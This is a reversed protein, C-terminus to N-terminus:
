YIQNWQRPFVAWNMQIYFLARLRRSWRWLASSKTKRASSPFKELLHLHISDLTSVWRYSWKSIRVFCVFSRCVASVRFCSSCVCMSKWSVISFNSCWNVEPQTFSQSVSQCVTFPHAIIHPDTHTQPHHWAAFLRKKHRELRNSLSRSAVSQTNKGHLKCSIHFIVAHITCVAHMNNNM